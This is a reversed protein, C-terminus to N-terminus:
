RRETKPRPEDALERDLRDAFRDFGDALAFLQASRRPDFRLGRAIGRLQEAFDRFMTSRPQDGGEPMAYM